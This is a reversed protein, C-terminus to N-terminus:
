QFCEEIAAKLDETKSPKHMVKVAGLELARKTSGSQVDATLIIVRADPDIVKLNGLTEFGDMEPMTLDLFVVDPRNKKYFDIGKQGGDAEFVEVDLPALEKKIMMRSLKSDDILLISRSMGEELTVSNIYFYASYGAPTENHNTKRSTFVSGEYEQHLYIVDRSM